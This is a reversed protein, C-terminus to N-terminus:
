IQEWDEDSIERIKLVQYPLGYRKCWQRIANDSVGYKNALYTFSFKRIEEKLIERSPHPVKIQEKHNCEFCLISENLIPKGCIACLKEKKRIKKKKSPTDSKVRHKRIPYIEDVDVWLTGDNIYSITRQM